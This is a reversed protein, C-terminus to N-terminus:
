DVAYPSKSQITKADKCLQDFEASLEAAHEEKHREWLQEIYAPPLAQWHKVARTAGFTNTYTKPKLEVFLADIEISRDDSLVDSVDIGTLWITEGSSSDEHRFEIIINESDILSIPKARYSGSQL